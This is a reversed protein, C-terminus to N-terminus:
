IGRTLVWERSYTYTALGLAALAYTCASIVALALGASTLTQSFLDRIAIITGLVPTAYWGIGADPGISFISLLVLAPLMLQLVFLFVNSERYSSAFSCFVMVLSNLFVIFPILLLVLIAILGILDHVSHAVIAIIDSLGAGQAALLKPGAEAALSLLLWEIMWLGMVVLSTLFVVTLKGLVIGLRSAPTVLVSEITQREKEVVTTDVVLGLGGGILWSTIALPLFIAGLGPGSSSSSSDNGSPATVSSAAAAAQTESVNVPSLWTGDHGSAQLRKDAVEGSYTGIESRVAGLALTSVFTNDRQTLTLHAQQGADLQQQFDDPITLTILTPNQSDTNASDAPNETVILAKSARLTKMLGPAAQGNIVNVPFGQTIYRATQSGIFIAAIIAIGPLIFPPALLWFVTKRDRLLERLEKRFVTRFVRWRTPATPTTSIM